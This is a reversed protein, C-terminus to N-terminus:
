EHNCYNGRLLRTSTSAVRCGERGGRLAIMSGGASISCLM